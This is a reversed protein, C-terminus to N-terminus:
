TFLIARKKAQSKTFKLNCNYLRNMIITHRQLTKYEFHANCDKICVWRSTGFCPASPVFPPYAICRRKLFIIYHTNLYYWLFFFFCSAKTLIAGKSLADHASTVAHDYYVMHLVKQSCCCFPFDMNEKALFHFVM